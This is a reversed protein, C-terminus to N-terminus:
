FQGYVFRGSGATSLVSLLFLCVGYQLWQPAIGDIQTALRRAGPAGAGVFLAVAMCIWAPVAVYAPMDSWGAPGSPSVALVQMLISTAQDWTPSRWFITSFSMLVFTLTMGALALTWHRAREGITDIPEGSAQRIRTRGRRRLSIVVLATVSVFVGQLVGFVFFNLTLGHWLGIILMNLMICLVLGAQGLERLSMSLPTFLYDTVWSTLSMHWRRWLEQVNVAAFPANFNPPGEVGFLKGVGLAINTYGAFDAYLQLMYCAGTTLMISYSFGSHSKDILEIFAALRDGVLLKMMLGGLILRFGTETQEANIARAMVDRMQAFFPEPRQIPGSVIQPFFAPFLFFVVPDREVAEDDWYVEILYSILKFSYYSVGLPLLLGRWAGAAKFVIIVAVVVAAGAAMYAQKARESGSKAIALGIAYVGASAVILLTLYIRSSLAYFAYSLALLYIARWRGSLLYFVVMAPVLAFYFVPSTFSV